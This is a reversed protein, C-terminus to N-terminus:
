LNSMLAQRCYVLQVLQYRISSIATTLTSSTDINDILALATVLAVKIETLEAESFDATNSYFDTKIDNIKGYLVDIQNKADALELENANLKNSLDYLTDYTTEFYSLAATVDDKIKSSLWDFEGKSMEIEKVYASQDNLKTLVDNATEEDPYVALLIEIQEDATRVYGAGGRDRVIAATSRALTLDSYGGATIAYYSTTKETTFLNLFADGSYLYCLGLTVMFCLVVTCIILANQKDSKRM